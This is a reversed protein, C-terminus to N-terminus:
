IRVVGCRDSGEKWTNPLYSSWGGGTSKKNTSGEVETRLENTFGGREQGRSEAARNPDHWFPKTKNTRNSDPKGGGKQV